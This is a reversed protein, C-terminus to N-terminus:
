KSTNTSVSNGLNLTYEGLTLGDPLEDVSEVVNIPVQYYAASVPKDVQFISATAELYYKGAKPFTLPDIVYLFPYTATYYGIGLGNIAYRVNAITAAKGNILSTVDLSEIDVEQGIVAYVQGADSVAVNNLTMTSNIAPVDDDDNSCSALFAMPLLLMLYLLKKM